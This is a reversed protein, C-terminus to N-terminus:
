LPHNTSKPLKRYLTLAKVLNDLMRDKERDAESYTKRQDETLSTRFEMEDMKGGAYGQGVFREFHKQVDQLSKGGDQVLEQLELAADQPKRYILAQKLPRYPDKDPDYVFDGPPTKGRKQNFDQALKNVKDVASDRLQTFGFSNLFSEM